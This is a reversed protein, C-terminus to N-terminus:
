INFNWAKIDFSSKLILFKLISSMKSTSTLLKSISPVVPVESDIDFSSKLISISPKLSRYRLDINFTASISTISRLYSLHLMLITTRTPVYQVQSQIDIEGEIDFTVATM